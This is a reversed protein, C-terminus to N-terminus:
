IILGYRITNGRVSINDLRLPDKNRVTLKAAKLHINMSGDVGILYIEYFIFFGTVAGQIISGNKLEITVSENNM